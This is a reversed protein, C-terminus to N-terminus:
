EVAQWDLWEGSNAYTQALLAVRTATLIEGTRVTPEVGSIIADFADAVV